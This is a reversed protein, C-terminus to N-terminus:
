QILLSKDKGLFLVCVYVCVFFFFSSFSEEKYKLPTMAASWIQSLLILYPIIELGGRMWM